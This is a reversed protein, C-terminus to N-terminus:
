LFDRMTAIRVALQDEFYIVVIKGPISNHWVWETTQVGGREYGLSRAYAFNSYGRIRDPPGLIAMVENGTLGPQVQGNETDLKPVFAAGSCASFVVALLLVFALSSKMATM